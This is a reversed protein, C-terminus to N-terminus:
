AEQPTYDPHKTELHRKMQVIQRNCGQVPCLAAAARKQAKKLAGKTGHLQATTHRHGERERRLQDQYYQRDAEAQEARKLAAERDAKLTGKGFTMSHGNPCCFSGGDERRHKELETTMAFIVGCTACDSIYMDITLVGGLAGQIRATKTMAM